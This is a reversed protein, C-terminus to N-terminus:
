IQPAEPQSSALQEELRLALGMEAARMDIRCGLRNEIERLRNTVTHRKVGLAAAASSVNGDAALYARLTKRALAGGDRMDALPTLYLQRLSEILVDDNLAGALLAVDAYRVIPNKGRQAIPLASAAQRHTLRWGSLGKCPEGIALSVKHFRTSEQLQVAIDLPRRGGLWAWAIDPDPHATLLGCDLSAALAQVADAAGKGGAVVGTHHTGFDYSLDSIDHLKGDLLSKVRKAHRKEASDLRDVAERRYEESVIAILGDLIVAQSRLIRKLEVAAREDWGAEEVLFDGLLAHGAIYRRLVVDLDVGNRAALRAQALLVVPVAVAHDGGRGLTELGYAIAASVAARLGERYTPDAVEAPDSVTCIRTLAAQEIEGRRAQLRERLAETDNRVSAATAL